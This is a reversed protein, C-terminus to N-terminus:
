CLFQGCYLTVFHYSFGIAYLDADYFENGGGTIRTASVDIEWHPTVDYFAGIAIIPRVHNTTGTRKGTPSTETLSGGETRRVYAIGGKAFLGFNQIPLMGKLSLDVGNEQIEPERPPDLQDANYQSAAFHTYGLELGIWKSFNGGLYIRGGFGTNSPSVNNQVCQYGDPSTPPSCNNVPPNPVPSSNGIVNQAPNNTNTQGLMLGFYFGEGAAYAVNSFFLIVSFIKAITRLRM